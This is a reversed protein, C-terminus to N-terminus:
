RLVEAPLIVAVGAISDSPMITDEERAIVTATHNIMHLGDKGNENIVFYREGLLAVSDVEGNPLITSAEVLLVSAKYEGGTTQGTAHM